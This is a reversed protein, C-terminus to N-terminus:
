EKSPTATQWIMEFQEAFFDFIKEDENRTIEFYPRKPPATRFTELTVFIRGTSLHPDFVKVGYPSLFDVVRYEIKGSTTIRKSLQNLHFLSREIYENYQAPSLNRYTRFAALNVAAGNPKMLIFRSELGSEFGQELENKLFPILVSLASGLFFVKKAKRIHPILISDDYGQKLFFQTSLRSQDIRTLVERIKENDHRNALLGGSVLALTTLIAAAIVNQDTIGLISLVSIVLAIIITIYLDLNQGKRLDNWFRFLIKM